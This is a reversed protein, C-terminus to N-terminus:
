PVFFHMSCSISYYAANSPLSFLHLHHICEFSLCFPGLSLSCSMLIFLHLQLFWSDLIVHFYSKILFNYDTELATFVM